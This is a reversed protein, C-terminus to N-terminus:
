SSVNLSALVQFLNICLTGTFYYLSKYIFLILEKARTGLVGGGEYSSAIPQSVRLDCLVVHSSASFVEDSM